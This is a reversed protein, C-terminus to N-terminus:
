YNQKQRKINEESKKIYADEIEKWTLDKINKKACSIAISMIQIHDMPSEGIQISSSLYKLMWVTSYKELNAITKEIVSDIEDYINKTDQNQLSLFFAMIDALEDLLKEKNIKHSQKWWKWVGLENIFEFTEVHLALLIEGTDIPEERIEKLRKYVENDVSEQVKYLGNFNVKM